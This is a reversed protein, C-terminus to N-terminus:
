ENHSQHSSRHPEHKNGHNPHFGLEREAAKRARIADDQNAFLGLHKNTNNVNIRAAWKKAAKNWSVGVVGEMEYRANRCNELKTVARLNCLRNDTRDGNIHDIFEPDEGTAIKWAIRHAYYNKGRFGSYLYRNPKMISFAPKGAHRSNWNAAKHASGWAGSPFWEPGRAKWILEGTAPNYLVLQDLIDKSPLPM